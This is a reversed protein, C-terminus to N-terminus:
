SLFLRRSSTTLHISLYRYEEEETDDVAINPAPQGEALVVSIDEGDEDEGITQSRLRYGLCRVTQSSSRVRSGYGKAKKILM